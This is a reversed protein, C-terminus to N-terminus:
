NTVGGYLVPLRGVFIQRTNISDTLTMSALFTRAYTNSQSNYPVNLITKFVSEPINIQVIGIDIISIYNALTAQLIPGQDDPTGFDYWAIYGSGTNNPTEGRIEFQYTLGFQCTISGSGKTYSTVYGSIIYAGTSDKLTVADGPNIALNAGVTFTLASLQAGIPPAPITISTSSSTVISGDVLTWSASTFPLAPLQGSANLAIGTVNIPVNLDDDYLAVTSVFDERNTFQPFLVPTIYM